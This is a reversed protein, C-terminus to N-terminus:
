NCELPNDTTEADVLSSRVGRAENGFAAMAKKLYDNYVLNLGWRESDMTNMWLVNGKRVFSGSGTDRNGAGQGALITYAWDGTISNVCLRARGYDDYFNLDFANVKAKSSSALCNNNENSETVGNTDDACAVLYYAGPATSSPITVTV